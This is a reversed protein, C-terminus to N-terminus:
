SVVGGNAGAALAQAHLKFEIQKEARLRTDLASPLSLEQAPSVNKHSLELSVGLRDEFFRILQSQQEYAFLRDVLLNGNDAMVMFSQRGVDAHRPPTPRLHDEVFTEFSIAGTYRPDGQMGDRQLYRYWSGLWSVPDRIVAVLQWKKRASRDLLPKTFTQFRYAHSHKVNPPRRFSIAAHPDLAAELATTGTKPVALYVLNENWFVLM